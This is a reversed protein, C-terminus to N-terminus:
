CARPRRPRCRRFRGRRRGRAAADRTRPSGSTVKEPPAPRTRTEAPSVLRQEARRPRADACSRRALRRATRSSCPPWPTAGPGRPRRGARHPADCRRRSGDVAAVVARLSLEAGDDGDVVEALAGVPAACGAELAALLAREATVAARTAPDDLPAVLRRPRPQPRRAASSPSPGRVPAPLMAASRAGRHGRGRPRPAPARGPRARRRGARRRRGLRLRTDVNGRLDVVELGLGLAACSRRAARPGTGIRPRCATRRPHPRGPGRARRAPGRPAPPGRRRGRARARDAPGEALAGGPRDRGRAPRPAARDVFVGAGGIPAAAAAVHRRGHGARGARRARGAAPTPRRRRSRDAVWRAQAGRRPPQAQHRDAAPCPLDSVSAGGRRLASEAGVGQQRSRVARAVRRRVRSRRAADALEKVRVTPTHLLKEVVRHVTRELEGRVVPDVDGCGATSGPSSPSSSPGPAPGCLSWPPRSPRPGRPRDPIRRGGQAVIAAAQEVASRGRRSRRVRGGGLERGLVDLDLVTIGPGDASRRPRRRPAPRSRRLGTAGRCQGRPRSGRRQRAVRPDRAWRARAPCSSTRPPWLPPCTPSPSWTRGPRGRWRLAREPDPQRPDAPARGGAAPEGGGPREDHRRRRRAGPRGRAPRRDRCRSWRPRSWLAGRGPGARDRHARAQRRAPQAAAPRRARTRHIRRGPRRAVRRAGTGPDAARRRGDVGPRLRRRFTRWRRRRTTSTSTGPSSTSTSGRSLRSRRASTTWAATSRPSRPTCRWATAPPSCWRRPSTRACWWTPRSRAPPPRTSPARELFAIPATRHSLGVVLESM